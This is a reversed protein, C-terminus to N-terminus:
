NFLKYLILSILFIFITLAGYQWIIIEALWLLISIIMSLFSAGVFRETFPVDRYVMLVIIYIILIFLIGLLGGTLDNVARITDLITQSEEIATMNYITM